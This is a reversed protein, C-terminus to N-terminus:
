NNSVIYAVILTTMLYLLGKVSNEVTAKAKGSAPDIYVFSVISYMLLVFALLYGLFKMTALDM